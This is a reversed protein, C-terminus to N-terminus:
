YQTTEPEDSATLSAIFAALRKSAENADARIQKAEDPPSTGAWSLAVAAAVRAAILQKLKTAQKTTIMRVGGRFEFAGSFHAPQQDSFGTCPIGAEALSL